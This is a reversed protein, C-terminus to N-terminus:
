KDMIAQVCNNGYLEKQRERNARQQEPTISNCDPCVDQRMPLMFMVIYREGCKPCIRSESYTGM